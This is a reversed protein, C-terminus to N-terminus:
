ISITIQKETRQFMLNRVKVLHYIQYTKYLPKDLYDDPQTSPKAVGSTKIENNPIYSVSM